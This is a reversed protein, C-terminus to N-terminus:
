PGPPQAPMAIACIARAIEAPEATAHSPIGIAAAEALVTPAGESRGNPLRVSPVVLLDAARMWDAVETRPVFGPLRLPVGLRRALQELREREPGDGLIVVEAAHGNATALAAGHLLRAHGKIPVLRGASLVTPRRLRLRARLPGDPRGRPAF